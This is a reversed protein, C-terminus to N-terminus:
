WDTRRTRWIGTALSWQTKQMSDSLCLRPKGMLLIPMQLPVQFCGPKKRSGSEDKWDMRWNEVELAVRVASNIM